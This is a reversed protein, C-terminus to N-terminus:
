SNESSGRLQVVLNQVTARLAPLERDVVTWVLNLDVGFYEHTLRDRMGAIKRWPTSPTLGKIADALHKVAEGVIELKRLVADQRMRDSMFADRGVSTYLQIDQIADIIHSLYATQDKV